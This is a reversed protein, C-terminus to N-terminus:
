ASRRFPPLALYRGSPSTRAASTRSQSWRRLGRRVYGPDFGFTHCISVFAFPWTADDSALWGEVEALLRRERRQEIGACLRLTAIADELVALQLRAEPRLCRSSRDLQGPVVLLPDLETIGRDAPHRSLADIDLAAM